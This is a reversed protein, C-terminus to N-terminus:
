MGVFPCVTCLNQKEMAERQSDDLQHRNQNNEMTKMLVGTKLM